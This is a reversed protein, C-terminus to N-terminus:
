EINDNRYIILEFLQFQISLLEFLENLLEFTFGNEEAEFQVMTSSATAYEQVLAVCNQLHHLPEWTNEDDPYGEWRVLFQFNLQSSSINSNPTQSTTEVRHAIIANM